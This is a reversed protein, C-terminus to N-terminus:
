NSVLGSATQANAQSTFCLSALMGFAVAAATSLQRRKAPYHRQSGNM